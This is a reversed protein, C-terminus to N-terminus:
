TQPFLVIHSEHIEEPVLCMDITDSCRYFHYIRLGGLLSRCLVYKHRAMPVFNSYWLGNNELQMGLFPAIFFLM